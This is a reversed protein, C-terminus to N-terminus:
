GRHLLRGGSWQKRRKGITYDCGAAQPHPSHICDSIATRGNRRLVYRILSPQGRSVASYRERLFRVGLVYSDLFLPSTHLQCQDTSLADFCDTRSCHSQLGGHKGTPPACDPASVAEHERVNVEMSMPHISMQQTQKQRNGM